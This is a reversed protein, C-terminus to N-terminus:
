ATVVHFCKSLSRGARQLTGPDFDFLSPAKVGRALQVCASSHRVYGDRCPDHHIQSIPDRALTYGLV